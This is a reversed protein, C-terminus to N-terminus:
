ALRDAVSVTSELRHVGLHADELFAAVWAGVGLVRYLADWGRGAERGATASRCRSLAHGLGLFLLFLKPFPNARPQHRFKPCRAEHEILLVFDQVTEALRLAKESHM